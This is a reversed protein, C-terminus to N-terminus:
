HLSPDGDRGIASLQSVAFFLLAFTVASALATFWDLPGLPRSSMVPLLTLLAISLFLANRAVLRYSLSERVYPGACGCDIDRRGRWINILIAVTYLALLLVALASGARSNALLALAAGAEAVILVVAALPVLASPLLRYTRVTGVFAAPASIKHVVAITFLACLMARLCLKLAPDGTVTELMGIM